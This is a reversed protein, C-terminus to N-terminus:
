KPYRRSRKKSNQDQQKYIKNNLDKIPPVVMESVNQTLAIKLLMNITTLKRTEDLINFNDYLLKIVGGFYELEEKSSNNEELINQLM